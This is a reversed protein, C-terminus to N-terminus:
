TAKPLHEWWHKVVAAHHVADRLVEAITQCQSKDSPLSSVPMLVIPKGAAIEPFM